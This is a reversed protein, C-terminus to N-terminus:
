PGLTAPPAGAPRRNGAFSGDRRNPTGVADRSESPLADSRAVVYKTAAVVAFVYYMLDWYSISLFAGGVLFGLLSSQVMSALRHAWSFEPLRACAKRIGSCDRWVLGWFVLFMFLGVFGHASLVQFYISHSVLTLDPVPGYKAFAAASEWLYGGGIPFRDVALNFATQWAWLRTMASSDAEYTELTKMRAVWGEPMATLAVLVLAAILIAIMMKNKGRWWLLVAMSSVSLLAGRSYTALVSAACLLAMAILGFRVYRRRTEAALYAILPIIAVLGVGLANNDMITAEPGYIRAAGGSIITFIGGKVGYFGLSLAVAWVVADIRRRDSVVLLLVGTMLFTKTVQILYGFAAESEMAFGTTLCMWLYFVVLAVGARGGKLQRPAKTIFVAVLTLIATIQALPLDYAFGYTLRHPNMVSVVIWTLVGLFPDFPIRLAVAAFVLSLLVDRM